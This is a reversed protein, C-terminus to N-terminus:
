GKGLLRGCILHNNGAIRSSNKPGLGVGLGGHLIRREALKNAKLKQVCTKTMSLRSMFFSTWFKDFLTAAINIRDTAVQVLDLLHSECIPATKLLADNAFGFSSAKCVRLKPRKGQEPSQSQRGTGSTWLLSNPFQKKGMIHSKLMRPKGTIEDMSVGGYFVSEGPNLITHNKDRLWEGQMRQTDDEGCLVRRGSNM